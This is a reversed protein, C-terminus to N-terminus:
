MKTLSHSTLIGIIKSTKTINSFSRKNNMLQKTSNNIKLILSM